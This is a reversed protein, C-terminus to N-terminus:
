GEDDSDEDSDSDSDPHEGEPHEADTAASDTPHEEGEPHEDTGEPQETAETANDDGSDNSKMDCSGLSIAMLFLVALFGASLLKIKETLYKM